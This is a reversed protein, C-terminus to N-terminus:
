YITIFSNYMAYAIMGPGSGHQKQVKLASQPSISSAPSRRSSMM